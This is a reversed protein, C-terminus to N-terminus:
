GSERDKELRRKKIRNFERKRMLDSDLIHLLELQKEGPIQGRWRTVASPDLGLEAAINMRTGMLKLIDEFEFINTKEM